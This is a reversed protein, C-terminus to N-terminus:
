LSWKASYRRNHLDMLVTHQSTSLCLHCPCCMDYLCLETLRTSAHWLIPRLLEGAQCTTFSVSSAVSSGVSTFAFVSVNYPTYEDLSMITVKNISSSVSRRRSTNLLLNTVVISYDLLIGNFSAPPAWQVVVSTSTVNSLTLNQVEGPAPFFILLSLVIWLSSRGSSDSLWPWLAQISLATSFPWEKWMLSQFGMKFHWLFAPKSDDTGRFDHLWTTQLGGGKMSIFLHYRGACLVLCALLLMGQRLEQLSEFKEYHTWFPMNVNRVLKQRSCLWQVLPILADLWPVVQCLYETRPTQVFDPLSLVTHPMKITRLVLTQFWIADPTLLSCSQVCWVWPLALSTEPPPVWSSPLCMSFSYWAHFWSRLRCSM